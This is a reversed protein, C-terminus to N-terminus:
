GLRVVLDFHKKEVPQVSLRMGRRVVLMDKLGPHNKLEDLTVLRSFKEVFQVDVMMWVPNEKTSRPDFYESKSDWSTFDPYAEKLVRAIGAVGPPETSSHYFLILDGAKM